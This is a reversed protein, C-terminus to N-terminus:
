KPSAGVDAAARRATRHTRARHMPLHDRVRRAQRLSPVHALVDLGHEELQELLRPAVQDPALAADDVEVLDILDRALRHTRRRRHVAVPM